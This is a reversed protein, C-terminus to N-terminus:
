VVTLKVFVREGQHTACIYYKVGKEFNEYIWNAPEYNSYYEIDEMKDFGLDILYSAIDYTDSFYKEETTQTLSNYVQFAM